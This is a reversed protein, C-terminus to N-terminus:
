FMTIELTPGIGCAKPALLFVVIYVAIAFILASFLWWFYQGGWGLENETFFYRYAALGGSGILAASLLIILLGLIDLTLQYSDPMVGCVTAFARVPLIVSIIALLKSLSSKM